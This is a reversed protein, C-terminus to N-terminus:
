YTLVSVLTVERWPTFVFWVGAPYEMSETSFHLNVVPKYSFMFILYLFGLQPRSDGPEGLPEEFDHM